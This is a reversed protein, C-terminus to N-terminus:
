WSLSWSGACTTMTRVKLYIVAGLPGASVAIFWGIQHLGTVSADIAWNYASNSFDLLQYDSM